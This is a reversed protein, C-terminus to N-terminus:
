CEARRPSTYLDVMQLLQDLDPPKRVCIRAGEIDDNDASASFILVPIQAMQQDAAVLKLFARGGMIPMLLDLLILAPQPQHHLIRLGERGNSATVVRYGDIELAERLTQLIIFEDDIVLITKGGSLPRSM